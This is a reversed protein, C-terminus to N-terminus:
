SFIKELKDLAKLGHGTLILLTTETEQILSQQLFHKFGKWVVASTPEVFLGRQHFVKLGEMIENESVVTIGGNTKSVIQLLMKGRVPRAAAIGEAITFQLQQYEPNINKGSVFADYVPSCHASQVGWLKPIRTIMKDKVLQRFGLYLGIYLGGFGVPVVVHDPVNWDLQEAIEYAITKIGEIFFPHWNHSAYYQKQAAKRVAHATDERTGSIKKLRAGYLRIQALKGGSAYAPCYIECDIGSRASYAAAAAGANGSSDEVIKKIGIEKLFSILLSAGRDKFSGTPSIFEPKVWVRIGDADFPLLPTFGEGMTIIHKDKEIPLIQRYRWM